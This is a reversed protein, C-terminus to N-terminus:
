IKIVQTRAASHLGPSRRGALVAEHGGMVFGLTRLSAVVSLRRRGKRRRTRHASRRPQILSTALAACDFGRQCCGTLGFSLPAAVRLRGRLAGAPVITERAVDIEACVRATM